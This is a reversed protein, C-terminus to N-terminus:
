EGARELILRYHEERLRFGLQRLHDDLMVMSQQQESALVIAEAEGRHIGTREMLELVVSPHQVSSLSLWTGAAAEVELAGPQGRGEIAVERFVAMPISIAGFLRPLLDLDGLASLYILPSSNSVGPM